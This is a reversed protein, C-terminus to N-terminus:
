ERDFYIQVYLKIYLGNQYISIIVMKMITPSKKTYTKYKKKKIENKQTIKCIKMFIQTKTVIKFFYNNFKANNTIM